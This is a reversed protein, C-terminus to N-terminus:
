ISLRFVCVYPFVCVHVVVSFFLFVVQFRKKIMWVKLFTNVWKINKWLKDLGFSYSLKETTRLDSCDWFVFLLFDLCKYDDSIMEAQWGWAVKICKKGQVHLGKSNGPAESHCGRRRWCGKLLDAASQQASGGPMETTSSACSVATLTCIIHLM